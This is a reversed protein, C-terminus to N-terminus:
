DLPSDDTVTGNGGYREDSGYRDSMITDFEDSISLNFKPEYGLGRRYLILEDKIGFFAKLGKRLNSIRHKLNSSEELKLACDWSVDRNSVSALVQFTKWVETPSAYRSKKNKFGMSEYTFRLEQGRAKIRVVDANVFTIFVENWALNPMERFVDSDAAAVTKSEFGELVYERLESPIHPATILEKEGERPQAILITSMLKEYATALEELWVFVGPPLKKISEIQYATLDEGRRDLREGLDSLGDVFRDWETPSMERYQGNADIGYAPLSVSDQGGPRTKEKGALLSVLDGPYIKWATVFPILRVPVAEKGDIRQIFDM